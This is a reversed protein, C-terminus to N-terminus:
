GAPLRALMGGVTDVLRTLRQPAPAAALSEPAAVDIVFRGQRVLLEEEDLRERVHLAEDGVQAPADGIAEYSSRLFAMHRRAGDVTEFSSVRVQAVDVGPAYGWASRRECMAKTFNVRGSYDVVSVAADVHEKALVSSAGGSASGTFLRAFDEATFVACPMAPPVDLVPSDYALLPPGQPAAALRQLNRASAELIRGAVGADGWTVALQVGVDGVRLWWVHDRSTHSPLTRRWVSVGPVGDIPPVAALHPKEHERAIVAVAAYGPQAVTVDVGGREQESTGLRVQCFNTEEAEPLGYEDIQTPITGQGDFVARSVALSGASTVAGAARIEQPTVVACAQVVASGGISVPPAPPDAAAFVIAAPDGIAASVSYGPREVYLGADRARTEEESVSASPAPPRGSPEPEATGAVQGTTGCGAALAVAMSVVMSVPLVSRAARATRACTRHPSM